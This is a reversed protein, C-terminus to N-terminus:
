YYQKIEELLKEEDDNNHVYDMYVSESRKLYLLWGQLSMIYDDDATLLPSYKGVYNNGACWMEHRVPYLHSEDIDHVIHPYGNEDIVLINNKRDDAVKMLKIIEEKTFIHEPKGRRELDLSLYKGIDLVLLNEAKCKEEILKNCRELLKSATQRSYIYYIEREQQSSMKKFFGDKCLYECEKKLYSMVSGDTNNFTIYFRINKEDVTSEFLNKFSWLKYNQLIFDQVLVRESYNNKHSIFTRQKFPSTGFLDSRLIVREDAGYSVLTEVTKIVSELYERFESNSCLGHRGDYTGPIGNYPGSKLVILFNGRCYRKVSKYGEPLREGSDYDYVGYQEYQASVYHAPYDEVLDECNNENKEFIPELEDLELLFYNWRFNDEFGEYYLCKPKLVYCWGITDHIYICGDENAGMAKGFDLGGGNPFLMHNYTSMSGIVNLIDIIKDKKRWACSGPQTNGFLYKDLFKWGSLQEKQYDNSVELWYELSEKYEVITQRNEPSNDTAKTINEELEVLHIKKFKDCFRLGMSEDLFAYTGDFGKEDGTLLMWTTKALSFVDAKKGDAHKPDRKMEPAITFIAGLGRDSRTFDNPNDPFEVLGFDGLYFRNKYYYINSPKIDRHAIGKEHLKSLTDALEIVGNIILQYDIEKENIYEMIPRAIPMTYWLQEKSYEIIPIVGDISACNESMIQIEDDFRSKKETSRNCLYKLAVETGSIKEKVRFVKANGGEGLEEIMDFKDLWCYNEEKGM